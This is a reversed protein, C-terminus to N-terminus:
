DLPDFVTKPQYCVPCIWDDPLEAFVTGVAVGAEPDGSAPDYIYGCNTCIYRMSGEPAPPAGIAKDDGENRQEGLRECM